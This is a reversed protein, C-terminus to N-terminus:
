DKEVIGDFRSRNRRRFYQERATYWLGNGCQDLDVHTHRIPYLGAAGNRDVEVIRFDADGDRQALSGSRAVAPAASDESSIRALGILDGSSQNDRSIGCVM